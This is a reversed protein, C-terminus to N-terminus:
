LTQSVSSIGRHFCIRLTKGYNLLRISGFSVKLLWPQFLTWFGCFYWRTASNGFLLSEIMRSRCQWLVMLMNCKQKQHGSGNTNCLELYSLKWGDISTVCSSALSIWLSALLFPKVLDSGSKGHDILCLCYFEIFFFITKYLLFHVAGLRNM